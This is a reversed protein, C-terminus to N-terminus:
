CPATRTTASTSISTMSWSSRERGSGLSSPALVPLALEPWGDLLVLDVPGAIDSLTDRADGVRLDIVDGLGAADFNRQAAAAKDPQM